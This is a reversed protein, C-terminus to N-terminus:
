ALCFDPRTMLQMKWVLLSLQQHNRASLHLNIRTSPKTTFSLGVRTGFDHALIARRRTRVRRIAGARLTGIRISRGALISSCPSSNSMYCLRAEEHELPMVTIFMYMMMFKLVVSSAKGRDKPASSASGDKAKAAFPGLVYMGTPKVATAATRMLQTAYAIWLGLTCEREGANV